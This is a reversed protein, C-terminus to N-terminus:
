GEVERDRKKYLCIWAKPKKSRNSEFYGANISLIEFYPEIATVVDKLSYQPPGHDRPLDDTSGVISMWLGGKELHLAARRAFLSRLEHTNYAHFCGRDFIFGFPKGPVDQELFDIELFSCTNGTEAAHTRAKQVAVDSVETGTVDFGQQALWVANAGTGSGIELAKCPNIPHDTIMRILNNDPRGVDWPTDGSKYRENFRKKKDM